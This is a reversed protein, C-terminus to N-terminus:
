TDLTELRRSFALALLTCVAGSLLYAGALAIGFQSSLSLAVLPAFGAGILWSIDSTMASATYRYTQRLCEVGGRRGGPRLVPRAAFGVM